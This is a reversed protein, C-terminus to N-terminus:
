IRRLITWNMMTDINLNCDKIRQVALLPLQGSLEMVDAGDRGEGALRSVEM